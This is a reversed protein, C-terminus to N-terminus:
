KVASEVQQLTYMPHSHHLKKMSYSHGSQHPPLSHSINTVSADSEEYSLSLISM